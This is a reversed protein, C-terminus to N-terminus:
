AAIAKEPAYGFAIPSKAHRARRLILEMPGAARPAKLHEVVGGAVAVLHVIRLRSAVIRPM